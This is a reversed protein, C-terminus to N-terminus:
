YWQDPRSSVVGKGPPLTVEGARVADFFRRIRREAEPATSRVAQKAMREETMMGTRQAPNRSKAQVMGAVALVSNKHIFGFERITGLRKPQKVAATVFIEEYAAWIAIAEKMRGQLFYLYGLTLVGLSLNYACMPEIHVLPRDAYLRCLYQVARQHHGHVAFVQYLMVDLTPAWRAEEFVTEDIAARVADAQAALLDHAASDAWDPYDVYRYGIVCAAVALTPIDGVFRLMCRRAAEVLTEDDAIRFGKRQVSSIFEDVTRVVLRPLHHASGGELATQVGEAMLSVGVEDLILAPHPLPARLIAEEGPLPPEAEALVEHNVTLVLRGQAAQPQGAEARVTAVLWGHRVVSERVRLGSANASDRDVM